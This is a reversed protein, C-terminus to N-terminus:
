KLNIEENRAFITSEPSCHVRLQVSARGAACVRAWCRALAYLQAGVRRGHVGAVRGTCRAGRVHM